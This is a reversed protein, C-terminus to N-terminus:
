QLINNRTSNKATHNEINIKTTQSHNKLLIVIGELNCRRTFVKDNNNNIKAINHNILKSNCRFNNLIYRQIASDGNTNIM